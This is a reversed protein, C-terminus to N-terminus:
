VLHFERQGLRRARRLGWVWVGSLGEDLTFRERGWDCSAGLRRLQQTIAGGYQAKWAWVQLSPFDHLSLPPTPHPPSPPPSSPRPPLPDYLTAPLTLLAYSCNIWEVDVPVTEWAVWGVGLNMSVGGGEGGLWM